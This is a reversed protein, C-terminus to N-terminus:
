NVLGSHGAGMPKNERQQRVWRNAQICARRCIRKISKVVSHGKEYVVAITIDGEDRVVTVSSKEGIDSRTEYLPDDKVMDMLLTCVDCWKALDVGDVSRHINLSTGDPSRVMVFTIGYNKIVQELVESPNKVKRM